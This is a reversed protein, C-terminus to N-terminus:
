LLTASLFTIDPELSSQRDDPNCQNKTLRKTARAHNKRSTSWWFEYSRGRMKMFILGTVDRREWSNKLASIKMHPYKGSQINVAREPV